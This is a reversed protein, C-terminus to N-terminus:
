VQCFNHTLGGLLSYLQRIERGFKWAAGQHDVIDCFNTKPLARILEIIPSRNAQSRVAPDDCTSVRPIPVIPDSRRILWWGQLADSLRDYKWFWQVDYLGDGSVREQRNV